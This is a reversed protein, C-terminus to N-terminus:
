SHYDLYPLTYELNARALANWRERNTRGIEDM